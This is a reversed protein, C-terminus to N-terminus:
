DLTVEFHFLGMYGCMEEQRGLSDVLTFLQEGPRSRSWVLLFSSYSSLLIGTDCYCDPINEVVGM